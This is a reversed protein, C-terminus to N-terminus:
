GKLFLALKIGVWTSCSKFSNLYPDLLFEKGNKYYLSACFFFFCWLEQLKIKTKEFFNKREMHVFIIQTRGGNGQKFFLFLQFIVLFKADFFLNTLVPM